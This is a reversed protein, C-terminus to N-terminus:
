KEGTHARKHEAMHSVTAERGREDCAARKRKRPREGVPEPPAPVGMDPPTPPPPRADSSSAM